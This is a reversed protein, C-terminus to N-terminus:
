SAEGVEALTAGEYGLAHLVPNEDHTSRVDQPTQSDVNRAFM